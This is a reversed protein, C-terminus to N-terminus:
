GQLLACCDWEKGPAALFSTFPREGYLRDKIVSGKQKKEYKNEKQEDNYVKLKQVLLHPAYIQTFMLYM